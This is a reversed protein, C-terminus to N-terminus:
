IRDLALLVTSRAVESFETKLFSEYASLNLRSAQYVDTKKSRPEQGCALLIDQALEESSIELKKVSKRFEEVVESSIRVNIHKLEPRVRRLNAVVTERWPVLQLDIEAIDETSLLEGSQARWLLYLLINIDAKNINQLQLCAAEVDKRSYIEISFDWLSPISSTGSNRM